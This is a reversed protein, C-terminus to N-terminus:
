TTKGGDQRRFNHWGPGQRREEPCDSRLFQAATERTVLGKDLLDRVCAEQTQMGDGTMAQAIQHTRGERVLSRVATNFSLIEFAAVRGGTACPLLQQSIVTHVVMSAQLRVQAQQAPPFADIIRDVANVAGKTHLTAIVLHGTEAATLATQITEPDRMEGLLIVDPSERLCASLGSLYTKTDLGIERQSVIGAQNRHLYEIPDELTVIHADRERNIADILCAQTTSKGSGAAGTVLVMGSDLSRLMMVADPIRCEAPDPIGFPIVRIVLGDSGRQRYANVRFRASGPLSFSFDDDWDDRFEGIDRGAAGYLGEMLGRTDEPSLRGGRKVLRGDVRVAPESGAVLFLDSARADVAQRLHDLIDM